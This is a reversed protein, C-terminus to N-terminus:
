DRGEAMQEAVFSRGRRGNVRWPIQRSPRGLQQPGMPITPISQGAVRKFKGKFYKIALLSGM